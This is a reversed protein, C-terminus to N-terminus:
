SVSADPFYQITADPIIAIRAKAGYRGKLEQIVETWTRAWNISSYPAVWDGGTKDSYPAM